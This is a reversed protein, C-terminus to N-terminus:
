STIKKILFERRKTKIQNPNLEGFRLEDCYESNPSGAVMHGNTGIPAVYCNLCVLPGPAGALGVHGPAGTPGIPGITGSLKM